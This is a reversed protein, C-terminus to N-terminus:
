EMFTLAEKEKMTKILKKMLHMKAENGLIHSGEQMGRKVVHGDSFPEELRYFLPGENELYIVPSLDKAKMSFLADSFLPHAKKRMLTLEVKELKWQDHLPVVHELRDNEFRREINEITPDEGKALKEKGEAVFAGLRYELLAESIAVESITEPLNQVGIKKCLALGLEKKLEEKVEDYPKKTRLRDYEKQLRESLFQDLIGRSKAEYFSMVEYSQSRDIVDIRYFTEGDETYCSLKERTEIDIEEEQGIIPNKELLTLLMKRDKLTPLIENESKLAIGLQKVEPEISSLKERILMPKEKLMKARSVEGMKERVEESLTQLFTFRKERDSELCNKLELFEKALENWHEDILQWQLVQKLPIDFAIEDKEIKAVKLLFRKEVLEPARERVEEPSLFEKPLGKTEKGSVKELYLELLLRDDLSQLSLTKPLKFLTVKAGKSAYDHFQRYLHSDVIVGTGVDDFLRRFLLVKKWAKVLDKESFGLQMVQMQYYKELEGGTFDHNPDLKKINKVSTQMLHAKAEELSVKYGKEEAFLAVNHIIEASLELFRTGFWDSVSKAHFLSLDNKRLNPDPVIWNSYQKEQYLLMNRMMEPSYFEQSLYLKALIRFTEEDDGKVEKFKLYDAYFAPMFHKWITEIGIIKQPHLYPKFKQFESVKERFQELSTEKCHSFIVEGLGTELIDHRIVGDNLINPLTGAHMSGLDVHDTDLLRMLSQIERAHMASGDLSKGIVRDPAEKSEMISGYTGFFSFSAIVFVTVVGFIYKQYKRLFTLM